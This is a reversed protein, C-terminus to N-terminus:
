EFRKEGSFFRALPNTQCQDPLDQHTMRTIKRQFRSLVPHRLKVNQKLFLLHGNKLLATPNDLM